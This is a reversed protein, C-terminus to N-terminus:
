DWWDEDEDWAAPASYGSFYDYAASVLSEARSELPAVSKKNGHYIDTNKYERIVGNVYDVLNDYSDESMGRYGGLRSVQGSVYNYHSSAIKEPMQNLAAMLSSNNSLYPKERYTSINNIRSSADEVSHFSTNKSFNVAARYDSIVRDVDRFSSEMENTIARQGSHLKDSRLRSIANTATKLNEESWSSSNFIRFAYKVIRNGYATDIKMIMEDAQENDLLKEQNMFGIKHYAKAFDGQCQPFDHQGVKTVDDNLINSYPDKFDINGPPALQTKIFILIGGIAIVVFLVLMIIKVSLKM